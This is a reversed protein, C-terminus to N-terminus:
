PKPHRSLQVMGLQKTESSEPGAPSDIATPLEHCFPRLGWAGAHRLGWAPEAGFGGLDKYGWAGWDGLDRLGFARRGLVRLGRAELVGWM